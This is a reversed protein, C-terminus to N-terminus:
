ISYHVTGYHVIDYEGTIIVQSAGCAKATLLCVLGIPGLFVSVSSLDLLIHVYMYMHMSMYMHMYLVCM